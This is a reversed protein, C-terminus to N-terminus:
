TRTEIVFLSFFNHKEIAVKESKHTRNNSLFAARRNEILFTKTRRPKYGKIMYQYWKHIIYVVICHM